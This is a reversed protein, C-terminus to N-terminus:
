LKLREGYVLEFARAFTCARGDHQGCITMDLGHLRILDAVSEATWHNPALTVQFCYLALKEILAERTMPVAGRERLRQRAADLRM